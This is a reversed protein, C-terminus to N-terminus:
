TATDHIRQKAAPRHDGAGRVVADHLAVDEDPPAVDRLHPGRRGGPHRPDDVGAAARHDRAEHLGVHVQTLHQHAAHGVVQRQELPEALSDPRELGGVVFRAKAGAGLQPQELRHQAARGRHEVHPRHAACSATRSAHTRDPTRATDPLAIISRPSPTGAPSRSDVRALRSSLSLSARSQAPLPSPRMPYAHAGRNMRDHLSASTRPATSRALARSWITWVCAASCGASRSATRESSPSSSTATSRRQPTAPGDRPARGRRGASGRRPSASRSPRCGCRGSGSRSGSARSPCRAPPPARRAPRAAPARPRRRARCCCGPRRSPAAGRRGARSAGCRRSWAARAFRARRRAVM